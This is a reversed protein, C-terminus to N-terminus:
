LVCHVAGMLMGTTTDVDAEVCDNGLTVTTEVGRVLKSRPSATAPLVGSADGFVLATVPTALVAAGGAGSASVDAERECLTVFYTALALPPVRAAFVLEAKASELGTVGPALRMQLQSPVGLGDAGIVCGFPWEDGPVDVALRM